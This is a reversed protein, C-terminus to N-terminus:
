PDSVKSVDTTHKNPRPNLVVRCALSNETYGEIAIRLAADVKSAAEEQMGSHAPPEGTM